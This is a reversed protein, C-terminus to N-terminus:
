ISTSSGVVAGKAAQALKTVQASIQPIISRLVEANSYSIYLTAASVLGVIIILLIILKEKTFGMEPQCLARIYLDNFKKADFGETASYDVNAVANKSADLDIWNVALCRYVAANDKLTIRYENGRVKHVLFDEEVRGVSFFDTLRGRVKILVLRGFSLRVKVYKWFFGKELFAVAAIALVLVVGYYFAQILIQFLIQNM